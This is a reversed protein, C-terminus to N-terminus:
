KKRTFHRVLLATAALLAIILVIPLAAGATSMLIEAPSAPLVDAHAPVTMGFLVAMTLLLAPIRKM